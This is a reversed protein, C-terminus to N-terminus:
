GRDCGGDGDSSVSLSAGDGDPICGASEGECFVIKTGFDNVM